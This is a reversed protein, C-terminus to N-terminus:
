PVPDLEETCPWPLTPPTGAILGDETLAWRFAVTRDRRRAALRLGNLLNPLRLPGYTSPSTTLRAGM